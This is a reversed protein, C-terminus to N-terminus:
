SCLEEDFIIEWEKEPKHSWKKDEKWNDKCVAICLLHTARTIAVYYNTLSKAIDWWKTYEKEKEWFQLIRNTTESSYTTDLVLTWTHTEWKVKAITAFKINTETDWIRFSEDPYINDKSKDQTWTPIAYPILFDWDKIKKWYIELWLIYEKVKSWDLENKEIQMSFTYINKQFNFYINNQKLYETFTTKSFHKEKEEWTKKDIYKYLIQNIKDQNFVHLIGNTINEKYLLYWGNKFDRSDIKQFYSFLHTKNKSDNQTRKQHSALLSDFFAAPAELM